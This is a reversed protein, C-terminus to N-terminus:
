EWTYESLRSVSKASLFPLRFLEGCSYVLRIRFGRKNKSATYGKIWVKGDPFQSSEAIIQMAASKAKEADISGTEDICLAGANACDDALAKLDVQIRIYRNMDQSFVLFMTFVLLLATFVIYTKM